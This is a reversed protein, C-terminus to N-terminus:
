DLTVISRASPELRIQLPAAVLEAESSTVGSGTLALLLQDWALRPPRRLAPNRGLMRELLESVEALSMKPPGTLGLCGEQTVHRGNALVASLVVRLGTRVEARRGVGNGGTGEREGDYHHEEYVAAEVLVVATLEVDPEVGPFSVSMAILDQTLASQLGAAITERTRADLSVATADPLYRIGVCDCISGLTKRAM